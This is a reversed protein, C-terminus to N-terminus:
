PYGPPVGRPNPMNVMEGAIAILYAQIHNTDQVGLQWVPTSVDIVAGPPTVLNMLNNIADAIDATHDVAVQIPITHADGHVVPHKVHKGAVETKVKM